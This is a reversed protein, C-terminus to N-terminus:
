EEAEANSAKVDDLFERGAKSIANAQKMGLVLLAFIPLLLGLILWQIRSVMVFIAFAVTFIIVARGLIAMFRDESNYRSKGIMLAEKDTLLVNLYPEQDPM